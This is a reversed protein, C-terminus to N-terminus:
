VMFLFLQYCAMLIIGGGALRKVWIKNLYERMQTAFLGMLLLNPLTGLGFVLMITAGRSASASSLAAISASYVMGCPLWGWLVGAMLAQFSNHIPLYRQAIPAIKRWLPQGIKELHTILTPKGAIYFGLAILMLNAVIFLISKSHNIAKLSLGWDALGGLAAGIVMYSAIRGISYLINLKFRQNPHTNLTLATVLGGCMGLCHGGGLFGALFLATLNIELM